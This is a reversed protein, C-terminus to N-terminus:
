REEDVPVGPLPSVESGTAVLINKASLTKSGGDALAVEVSNPGKLTGWGKVYEV